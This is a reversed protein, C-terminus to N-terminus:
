EHIKYQNLLRATAYCYHDIIESQNTDLADIQAIDQPELKFDFIQIDEKIKEKRESKVLFFGNRQLQWRLVIQAPTRQYKNALKTLVPHNFIDKQGENLAGWAQLKCTSGEMAEVLEKQQFFPHFEVQNIMPKIESNMYLDVFREPVFNCVGIARVKKEKYLKELVRWSGYYDGFPQHILYLDIYSTQLNELSTEFAKLTNEYGSDQVWVKTIIFIDERKLGSEKIAQGIEKENKYSAATDIMRYGQNLAELICEKVKTIPINLTGYGISPIEIGNALKVYEVDEEGKM